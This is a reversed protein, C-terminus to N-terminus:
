AASLKGNEAILKVNRIGELSVDFRIGEDVKHIDTTGDDRAIQLPIMEDAFHGAQTAAIARRHSNYSFEDLKEKSLGYKEAVMEARDSLLTPFRFPIIDRAKFLRNVVRHFELATERTNSTALTSHESFFCTLCAIQVRQVTVGAVGGPLDVFAGDSETVGYLLLPM